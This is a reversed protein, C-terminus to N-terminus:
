VGAGLKEVVYSPCPRGAGQFQLCGRARAVSRRLRRFEPKRGRKNRWDFPKLYIISTYEDRDGGPNIQFDPVGEFRIQLVHADRQQVAIRKAFGIGQIGPYHKDIALTNVYSHWATRRVYNGTAAFLGVRGRLVEQYATLRQGIAFQAESFNFKLRDNAVQAAKTSANSSMWFSVMALCALAAVALLGVSYRAVVLRLLAAFWRARFHGRGGDAVSQLKPITRM